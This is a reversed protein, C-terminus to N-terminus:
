LSFKQIMPMTEDILDSANKQVELCSSLILALHYGMILQSNILQQQKSVVAAAKAPTGGKIDALFLIETYNKNLGQCFNELKKIYDTISEEPQLSVAFLSEQKGLIMEASQKMGICGAGHGVLIIARMKDDKRIKLDTVNKLSKNIAIIADYMILFKTEIYKAM